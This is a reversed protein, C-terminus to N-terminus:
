IFTRIIGYVLLVIAIMGLIFLIIDLIDKTKKKM